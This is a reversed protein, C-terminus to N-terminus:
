ARDRQNSPTVRGRLEAESGRLGSERREGGGFRERERVSPEGEKKGEGKVLSARFTEGTVSRQTGNERKGTVLGKEAVPGRCM